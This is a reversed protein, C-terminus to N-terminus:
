SARGSVPKNKNKAPYAYRQAIFDLSGKKVGLISEMFSAVARAKRALIEKSFFLIDNEFILQSYMMVFEAFERPFETKFIGESIGQRVLRELIPSIKKITKVIIKYQMEANNCYKLQLYIERYGATVHYDVSNIDYLKEMATKGHENVKEKMKEASYSVFRMILADMVEEKSKFYYYFTGKAIGVVKLIDEITSKYYGKKIFLVEAKDLIEKKRIDHKKLIRM